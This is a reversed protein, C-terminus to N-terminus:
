YRYQLGLSTSRVPDRAGTNGLRLDRNDFGFSASLRPTVDMSVGAGFSMGYGSEAPGPGYGV